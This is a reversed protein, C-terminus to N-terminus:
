VAAASAIAATEWYLLLAAEATKNADRDFEVVSKMLTPVQEDCVFLLFLLCSLLAFEGM